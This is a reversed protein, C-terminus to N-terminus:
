SDASAYVRSGGIFTNTVAVDSLEDPRTMVLDRDLTVLDALYGTRIKGADDLHNAWSSGSTYSAVAEALSIAQEPLFAPLGLAPHARNVAVHVADMPNASSVPWDSGAALRAGANALHGFPFSWRLREEGLLPAKEQDLQPEHCAWVMQVNAIAGIQGFRPVDDPAVIDLHAIQHRNGLNGNARRTADIADLADRVALDGVAHIHLSFGARDLAIAIDTLQGLPIFSDPSVDPHGCYPDVMSATMFEIMGDLMIKVVRPQFMRSSYKARVDILDDIQAIGLSREWWLGAIVRCTLADADVARSYAGLTSQGDPGPAVMVQADQWATIGLKQLHTQAFQLGVDLEDETIAPTHRRVLDMAGDSLIGSPHGNEDREIRGDYPDPTSATVGALELARSNVWASHGDRAPLYVPRDSVIPDLMAATPKGDPFVDVSWGGGLIWETDPHSQCYAAILELYGPLTSNEYGNVSTSDRLNCRVAYEVGAAIPHIHADQFGPLLTGGKLDVIETRGDRLERADLEPLVAIIREGKVAVATGPPQPDAPGGVQGNVFLVDAATSGTM